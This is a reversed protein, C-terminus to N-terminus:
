PCSNVLTNGFKPKVVSFDGTNILGGLDYDFQATAATPTQGFKPKIISADGTTVLGGRDIDGALGCVCVEASGAGDDCDLTVTCCCKDPLATSFTVTVVNGVVSATGTGTYACPGCDITVPGAAGSADDVTIDLELIGGQRPEIGGSLGMDLCLRGAAGHNRCSDCDSATCAAGGGCPPDLAACTGTDWRLPPQCNAELINNTCVGTADNCCAGLSECLVHFVYEQEDCVLGEFINDPATFLYYIGQGM